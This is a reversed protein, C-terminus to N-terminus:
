FLQSIIGGSQRKMPFESQILDYLLSQTAKKLIFIKKVKPNSRKFKLANKRSLHKPIDFICFFLLETIAVLSCGICLSALGGFAAMLDIFPYEASTEYLIIPDKLFLVNFFIESNNRNIIPTTDIRFDALYTLSRCNFMCPCKMGANEFKVYDEEDEGLVSKLHSEHKYLCPLDILRCPPYVQGPPYFLDVTCNCYKVLYEQKCQDQCNEYMYKRGPLNRYKIKENEDEFICNRIKRSYVRTNEHHIHLFSDLLVFVRSNTPVERFTDSWVHPEVIMVLIGKDIPSFPSHWSERLHIRVSLGNADGYGVTRRPYYPDHNLKHLGEKSEIGNFALCQGTQTRRPTFLECCDHAQSIWYCSSFMEDCKWAMQEEVETFNIYNLDHLLQSAYNESINKFNEFNGFYLTDYANLVEKFLQEHQATFHQKRLFKEKTENYRQWNLRNQNCITIEPFPIKYLPYRLSSIVTRLPKNRYIDVINWTANILMYISIILGCIILFREYSATSKILAGFMGRIISVNSFDNWLRNVKEDEDEKRYEKENNEDERIDFKLLKSSKIKIDKYDEFIM